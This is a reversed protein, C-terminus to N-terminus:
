TAAPLQSRDHYLMHTNYEGARVHTDGAPLLLGKPCWGHQCSTQGICPHSPLVLGPCCLRGALVAYLVCCLVAPCCAPVEAAKKGQM